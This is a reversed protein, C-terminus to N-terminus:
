CNEGLVLVLLKTFIILKLLIESAPSKLLFYIACIQASQNDRLQVIFAGHFMRINFRLRIQMRVTTSM